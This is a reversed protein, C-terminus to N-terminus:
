AEDSEGQLPEPWGALYAIECRESYSPPYLIAENTYGMKRCFFSVTLNRRKYTPLTSWTRKM